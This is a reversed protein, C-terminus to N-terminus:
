ETKVRKPTIVHTDAAVSGKEYDLKGESEKMEYLKVNPKWTEKKMEKKLEEKEIKDLSSTFRVVSNVRPKKDELPHVSQLVPIVIESPPIEIKLRSMLGRMVDDVKAYIRLDAKKDHKTKSLSVIVLKGEALGDRVEAVNTSPLCNHVNGDGRENHVPSSQKLTDDNGDNGKEGARQEGGRQQDREKEAIKKRKRKVYTPFNGAPVIQLSTGLTLSLDAMKAHEEAAAADREPLDAEWDLITDKLKGRCGRQGDRKTAECVNGTLRQAMTPVPDLNLFQTGCKDCEEVFVDGHLFSLRNRPFGSRLHLGDVNQTVVYKVLAARELAVLAMHTPTPMADEWTLNVRPKEGKEELTWVGRPGRFDPIGASTSIGAGTHVVLHRSRRVYDALTDLKSELDSPLDFQESLNVKGKHEYPSLGEAYNVSM